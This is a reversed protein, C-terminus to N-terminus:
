LPRNKNNNLKILEKHIESILKKDLIHKSFKTEWETPQREM